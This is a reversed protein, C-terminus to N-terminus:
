DPTVGLFEEHGEFIERLLLEIRQRLDAHEPRCVEQGTHDADVLSLNPRAITSDATM